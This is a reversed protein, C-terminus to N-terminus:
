VLAVAMLALCVVSAMWIITRIYNVGMLYTVLYAIRLGFWITATEAVPAGTATALVALPMFVIMSEQMNVAARKARQPIISIDAAEDRAGYLYSNPVEKRMFAIMNPALLQAVYLILTALIIETM